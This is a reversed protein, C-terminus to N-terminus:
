PAPGAPGRVPRRRARCHECRASSRQTFSIRPALDQGIVGMCSQNRQSFRRQALRAHVLGTQAALQRTKGM